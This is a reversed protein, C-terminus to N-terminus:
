LVEEQYFHIVAGDVNLVIPLYTKSHNVFHPKILLAFM